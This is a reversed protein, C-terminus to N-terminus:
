PVPQIDSYWVCSVGKEVYEITVPDCMLTCFGGYCQPICVEEYLTQWVGQRERCARGLETEVQVTLNLNEWQCSSGIWHGGQNLCWTQRNDSPSNQAFEPQTIMVPSAVVTISCGLILSISGHFKKHKM